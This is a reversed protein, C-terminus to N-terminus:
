NESSTEEIIGVARQEDSGKRTCPNQTQKGERGSINWMNKGLNIRKPWAAHGPPDENGSWPDFMHRRYCFCSTKFMPSGPFDRGPKNQDRNM